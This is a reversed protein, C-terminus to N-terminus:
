SRLLPRLCSVGPPSLLLSVPPAPGPGRHGLTACREFGVSDVRNKVFVSLYSDNLVEAVPGSISGARATWICGTLCRSTVSHPRGLAVPPGVRARRRPSDFARRNFARPTYMAAHDAVCQMPIFFARATSPNGPSGQPPRRLAHATRNSPQPFAACGLSGGLPPISATATRASAGGASHVEIYNNLISEPDRLGTLVELATEDKSPGIGRRVPPVEPTPSVIM